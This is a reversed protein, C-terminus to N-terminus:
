EPFFYLMMNQTKTIERLFLIKHLKKSKKGGAKLVIALTDHGCYLDCIILTWTLLVHSSFLFYLKRYIYKQYIYILANSIYTYIWVSIYIYRIHCNAVSCFELSYFHSVNKEKILKLNSFITNFRHAPERRVIWLFSFVNFFSM